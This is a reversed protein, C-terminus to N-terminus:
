AVAVAFVLDKSEPKQVGLVFGLEQPTETKGNAQEAGRRTKAM